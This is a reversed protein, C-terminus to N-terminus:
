HARGLARRDVARSAQSVEGRESLRPHARHHRPRGVPLRSDPRGPDAPLLACLDRGRRGHRPDRAGACSGGAAEGSAPLLQRAVVVALRNGLGIDALLDNWGELKLSKLLHKKRDEDLAAIQAGNALLAKGLLRKGLRISEDRQLNKLYHRIHARAKGSVAYDLWAPNPRGHQATLIEVSDGNRLVTRLPVLEHNVRAGVCHNGIDSHVDYAFDVVSAGRPPKRIDGAPTFM